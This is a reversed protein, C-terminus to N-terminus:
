ILMKLDCFVLLLSHSSSFFFGRGFFGVGFCFGFVLGWLYM